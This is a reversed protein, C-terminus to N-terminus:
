VGEIKKLYILSFDASSNQVQVFISEQYFLDQFALVYYTGDDFCSMDSVYASISSLNDWTDNYIINGDTSIQISYEKNAAVTSVGLFVMESIAGEGKQSLITKKGIIPEVLRVVSTTYKKTKIKDTIQQKIDVEGADLIPFADISRLDTTPEPFFETKVHEEPKEISQLLYEVIKEIIEKKTTM